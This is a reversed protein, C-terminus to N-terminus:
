VALIVEAFRFAFWSVRQPRIILSDGIRPYRPIVRDHPM